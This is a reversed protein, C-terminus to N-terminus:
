SGDFHPTAKRCDSSKDIIEKAHAIEITSQRRSIGIIENALGLKKAAVCISAGLLGLGLVILKDVQSDGARYKNTM